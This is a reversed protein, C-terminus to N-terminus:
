AAGCSGVPKDKVISCIVMSGTSNELSEWSESEEDAKPDGKVVGVRASGGEGSFRLRVGLGGRGRV